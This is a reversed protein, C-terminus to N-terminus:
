KPEKTALSEIAGIFDNFEEYDGSMPCIEVIKLHRGHAPGPIRGARLVRTFTRWLAADRGSDQAVQPLPSHKPKAAQKARIVEVKTWIRTLETEGAAHMDMGNALCLAALTVMVGGVEQAPEGIDRGFTYDVLQHAESATMGCAQVLETAEEFFRHNREAKDASIEAGFCAMMWPQVCKQFPEAIDAALEANERGVALGDRYHEDYQDQSWMHQGTVRDHWLGHDMFFREEQASIASPVPQAVKAAAPPASLAELDRYTRATVGNLGVKRISNGFREWATYDGKRDAIACASRLLDELEKERQDPITLMMRLADACERLTARRAPSSGDETEAMVEWTGVLEEIIAAKM